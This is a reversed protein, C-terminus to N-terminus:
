INYKKKLIQNYLKLDWYNYLKIAEFENNTMKKYQSKNEHIKVTTSVNFKKLFKNVDSNYNEFNIITDFCKLNKVAINFIREDVFEDILGSYYQCYLNRVDKSARLYNILGRSSVVENMRKSMQYHSFVRDIPNRLITVYKFKAPSCNISVPNHLAKKKFIYFPLNYKETYIRFSWGGTKPVAILCYENENFSYDNQNYYHYFNLGIRSFNTLFLKDLIKGILPSIKKYKLREFYEKM